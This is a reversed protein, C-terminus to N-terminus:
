ACRKHVSEVWFRKDKYTITIDFYCIEQSCEDCCDREIDRIQFKEDSCPVHVFGLPQAVIGRRSVSKASCTNIYLELLKAPTGKLLTDHFAAVGPSFSACIITDILATDVIMRYYDPDILEACIAFVTLGLERTMLQM